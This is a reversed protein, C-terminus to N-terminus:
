AGRHLSVDLVVVDIRGQLSSDMTMTIKERLEEPSEIGHRIRDAVKIKPGYWLVLYVGQKEADHHSAYRVDLQTSAAEFLESHWQGKAEVVLLRRTGDIMASVTFDCRNANAMTHEVVLPMNMATFRDRLRDVIRNRATNEDVHRGADYFDVLPDTDATRLVTQLEQLQEVLFARMDEVSAINGRDLMAAVEAPTPAAFDLLASKAEAEAKITLLAGSLSTFRPDTLMRNLITLSRRPGDRGIRWVINSLFRWAQEEPPDGSGYSSPLKVPKWVEIFEDLLNYIKKSSLAPWKEESGFRGARDDVLFILNPDGRLDDWGDKDDPGFFFKRLQWFLLDEKWNTISEDHDGATPRAGTTEAIMYDILELLALRDAYRAALDFLEERASKPMAPYDNLWEMSLSGRLHELEPQHALWWTREFGDRPGSLGPTIYDRAFREAASEENFVRRNLEKEFVAYKDADMADQKHAAIRAALLFRREIHDISGQERFQVWASAFVARAVDDGEHRALQELTPVYESLFPLCNRLCAHVIENDETFDKLRSPEYLFYQSFRKIWGWHRGARVKEINQLLDAQIKTKNKVERHQHRRFKRDMRFDRSRLMAAHSQEMKSWVAAFSPKMRAHQRLRSRLADPGRNDSYMPPRKWCSTWIAVDDSHFAMEALWLDDGEQYTLGAHRHGNWLSYRRQFADKADTSGAFARRQLERRLATNRALTDVALSKGTQIQHQFWLASTWCWIRDPDLNDSSTEFYKDLLRGVVKSAKDRCTCGYDGNGCICVIESALTDLHRCTDALPLRDIIQKLYFTGMILDEDMSRRVQGPRSFAKLLAEIVGSSDQPRDPDAVLEVAMMLSASSGDGILAHVDRDASGGELRRVARLAWTRTSRELLGNLMIPRIDEALSVPGGSGALLELILDLMPSGPAITRLLHRVDEAVEETFFGGVSFRRWHDSRRFGPNEAALVALRALLLRKSAPLLSSPDGNALVAYADLEIARVQVKEPGISAMWGLLGRLEDRVTSNPAIVSLLRRMSLPNRADKIRQILHEAACYEAVMRHVPEHDDASEAPKFLKTDLLLFGESGSHPDLSPLYPYDLEGVHERTSVGSAESLLLKAMVASAREVIEASPPRVVVRLGKGSEVALREVASRFIQRKSTFRRNSQVFADALLRLFQPNGLLATLEFREVEESFLEFSEDPFRSQFLQRQEDRTFPDIRIIVPEVGFCEHVWHTRAEDWGYSRSAFIVQGNSNEQAAVIIQDLSSQDIKAAEDLSDIILPAADRRATRHRFQSARVPSVDWIRGFEALLETKGAGPEALVVFVMGKTLAEQETCQENGVKLRRGVYPRDVSRQIRIGEVRALLGRRCMKLLLLQSSM